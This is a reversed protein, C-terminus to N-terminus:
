YVVREFPEYPYSVQYGTYTLGVTFLTLLRVTVGATRASHAGVPRAVTGAEKGRVIAASVLLSLLHSGGAM